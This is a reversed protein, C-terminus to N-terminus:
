SAKPSTMGLERLHKWILDAKLGLAEGLLRGNWKSYGDPVPDDLKELLRKRIIEASQNLAPRGPRYDDHLGEMRESEFRVRWKSVTAQRIDMQEAIEKNSMGKAAKLIIRARDSHRRQAKPAKSLNELETKELDTLTIETAKRGM